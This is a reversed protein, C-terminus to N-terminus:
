TVLSDTFIPGVDIDYVEDGHAYENGGASMGLIGELPNNIGTQSSFSYYEFVDVCSSEDTTMCVKDEYETGLLSASGYLRESTVGGQTPTASSSDHTTGECNSCNVDPVVLWDSGTDYVVDISTGSTGGMLVEGIYLPLELVPHTQEHEFTQTLRFKNKINAEGKHFHSILRAKVAPDITPAEFNITTDIIESYKNLHKNESSYKM